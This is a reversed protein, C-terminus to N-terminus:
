PKVTITIKKSLVPPSHPIHNLDAFLLQLTHQGASLNISTETQGKGFHVIRDTAPLPLSQDAPAATDILLHHHGREVLLGGASMAIQGHRDLEDPHEDWYATPITKLFMQPAMSMAGDAVFTFTVDDMQFRRVSAQENLQGITGKTM